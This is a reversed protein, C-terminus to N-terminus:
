KLLNKIEELNYRYTKLIKSNDANLEGGCGYYYLTFANFRSGYKELLKVNELTMKILKSFDPDHLNFDRRTALTDDFDYGVIGFYVM